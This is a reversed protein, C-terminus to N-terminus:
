MDIWIEETPQWNVRSRRGNRYWQRTGDPLIVAPKDGDDRHQQDNLYYFLAGDAKIIAPGNDRTLRGNVYYRQEGDALVVAPKNENHLQGRQYHFYSGDELVLAPSGDAPDHYYGDQDYFIKASFSLKDFWKYYEQNRVRQNRLDNVYVIVKGDEMTMLEEERVFDRGQCWHKTGNTRMISPLGNLRWIENNLHWIQCGDSDYAAEDDWSNPKGNEYKQDYREERLVNIRIGNIRFWVYVRDKLIVNSTVVFNRKTLVLLMNLKMDKSLLAFEYLEEAELYGVVGGLVDESLGLLSASECLSM